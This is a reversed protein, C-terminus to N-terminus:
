KWSYIKTNSDRTNINLMATNGGLPTGELPCYEQLTFTKSLNPNFKVSPENPVLLQRLLLHFHINIANPNTFAL